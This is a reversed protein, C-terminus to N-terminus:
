PRTDGRGPDQDGAVTDAAPPAVKIGNAGALTRVLGFPDREAMSEAVSRDFAGEYVNRAPSTPLFDNEPITKRMEQMLQTLFMVQLEKAAAAKGDGPAMRRIADLRGSDADTAVVPAPLPSGITSV